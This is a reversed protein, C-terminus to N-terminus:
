KSMKKIQFNSNTQKQHIEDNQHYKKLISSYKEYMKDTLTCLYATTFEFHFSEQEAHSLKSQSVHKLKACLFDSSESLFHIKLDLLEPKLVLYKIINDYLNERNEINKSYEGGIECFDMHQFNNEEACNCLKNITQIAVLTIKEYDIIIM